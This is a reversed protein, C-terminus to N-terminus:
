RRFYGSFGIQRIRNPYNPYLHNELTRPLNYTKHLQILQERFRALLTLIATEITCNDSPVYSANLAEVLSPSLRRELKLDSANRPVRRRIWDDAKALYSRFEELLNQAFLLEGRRARRFVEHATALGKSLLWDIQKQEVEFKFSCSREIIKSAVAKADYLITTPLSHWPSHCFKTQNYYFMDIKLFPRFHSVCHQTGEM